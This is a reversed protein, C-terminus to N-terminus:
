LEAYPDTGTELECMPKNAMSKNDRLIPYKKKTTNFQKNSM